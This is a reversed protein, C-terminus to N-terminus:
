IFKLYCLLFYLVVAADAIFINIPPNVWIKIKRLKITKSRVYYMYMHIHGVFRRSKIEIEYIGNRNRYFIICSM